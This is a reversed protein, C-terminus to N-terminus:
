CGMEICSNGALYGNGIPLWEKSWSVGVTKFWIGNGSAPFGPPAAEITSVLGLVPLLAGRQFMRGM